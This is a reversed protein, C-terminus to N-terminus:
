PTPAQPKAGVRYPGTAVTPVPRTRRWAELVGFGVILLGIPDHTAQTVPALLLQPLLAPVDAKDPVVGGCVQWAYGMSGAVYTLAAALYQYPKGSINRTSKRIVQAVVYGIGITILALNYKTAWVVGAYAVGCALATAIGLAAAQGFVAPDMVHEGLRTVQDRCSACLVRGQWQWYQAGVPKGCMGCTPGATPADYTAHEFQLDPTPESM